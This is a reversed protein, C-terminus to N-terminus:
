SRTPWRTAGGATGFMPWARWSASPDDLGEGRARPHFLALGATRKPYTAAYLAAMGCGEHSALIVTRTSGAADLVAHLDEMRTELTAFQGGHDSLCTGRKDFLIVKFREALLLYFDRWRPYEWGYVLNSMYDPVYVLDTDGTAWSRTPLRSAAAERM